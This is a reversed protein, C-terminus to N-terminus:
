SLGAGLCILVSDATSRDLHESQEFGTYAMSFTCRDSTENQGMRVQGNRLDFGVLFDIVLGAKFTRM